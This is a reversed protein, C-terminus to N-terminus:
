VIRKTPLTLHTYSVAVDVVVPSRTIEPPTPIAFLTNMPPLKVTDPVNLPPETSNPLTLIACVVALVISVDDPFRTSSEVPPKTSILSLTSISLLRITCPLVVNPFEVLSKTVIDPIVM